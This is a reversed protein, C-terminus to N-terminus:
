SLHPCERFVGSGQDVSPLQHGRGQRELVLRLASAGEDFWYSRRDMWVYESALPRNTLADLLAAVGNSPEPDQYVAILVFLWALGFSRVSKSPKCRRHAQRKIRLDARLCARARRAGSRDTLAPFECDSVSLRTARSVQPSAPQGAACVSRRLRPYGRTPHGNRASFRPHDSDASASLQKIVSTTELGPAPLRKAPRETDSRARPNSKEV